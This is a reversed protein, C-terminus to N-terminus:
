SLQVQPCCAALVKALLARDRIPKAAIRMTTVQCPIDSWLSLCPLTSSSRCSALLQM